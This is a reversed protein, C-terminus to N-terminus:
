KVLITKYLAYYMGAVKDATYKQCNMLGDHICKDRVEKSNLLTAFGDHISEISYPDVFLSGKGITKMPEINSTLVPRGVMQAEVIPLGFGEFISPFSVIDAREYEQILSEESINYDNSYDLHLANLLELEQQGLKGIIRLHCKLGNLAQIVRILNKNERTGVHLIIPNIENFEKSVYHFSNSVPSPIISIKSEAWPFFSILDKKTEESICCIYKLNRLPFYYWFWYIIKKYLKGISQSHLLVCDHITMVTNNRNMLCGVYQVDGTIHFIKKSRSKIAYRIINFLITFPFFRFRKVYSKNTVIEYNAVCSIINNFCKEISVMDSPPRYIYEVKM